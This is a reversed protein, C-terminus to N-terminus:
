RNFSLSYTSLRSSQSTRYIRECGILVVTACISALTLEGLPLTNILSL